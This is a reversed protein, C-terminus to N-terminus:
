EFAMELKGTQSLDVNVEHFAEMVFYVDHGDQCFGVGQGLHLDTLHLSSDHVLYRAVINM